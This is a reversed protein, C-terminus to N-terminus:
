PLAQKRCCRLEVRLLLLKFFVRELNPSSPFVIVAARPTAFYIAWHNIKFPFDLFQLPAWGVM